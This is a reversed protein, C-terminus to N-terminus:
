GTEYYRLRFIARCCRDYHPHQREKGTLAQLLEGGKGLVRISTGFDMLQGEIRIGSLNGWPQLVAQGYGMGPVLIGIVLTMIVSNMNFVKKM